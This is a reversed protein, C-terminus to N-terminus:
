FILALFAQVGNINKQYTLVYTLMSCVFLVLLLMTSSRFVLEILLLLCDIQWDNM